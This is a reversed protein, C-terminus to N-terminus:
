VRGTGEIHRLKETFEARARRLRAKVADLTCDLAECLENYDLGNVERLTLILRYNEPLAALVRGVLEADAAGREPGSESMLAHIREGEDELLADLSQSKARGASRLLDLCRNSGVRYLWTSFAADGRFSKLSRYAKLFVEQAADEASDADPMMSRCLALVQGHHRRILEAFADGDGLQAAKTLTLDDREDAM